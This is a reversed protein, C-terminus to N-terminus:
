GRNAHAPDNIKMLRQIGPPRGSETQGSTKPKFASLWTCDIPPARHAPNKRSQERNKKEASRDRAASLIQITFDNELRPFLLHPRISFSTGSQIEHADDHM